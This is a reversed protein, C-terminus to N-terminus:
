RSATRDQFPIVAALESERKAIHAAADSLSTVRTYPPQPAPERYGRDIWISAVGAAQGAEIDRYRDGILYSSALDIGHDRAADLLMGPKPKRCHCRDGDHDCVYFADLPLRERLLNNIADVMARTQTGRAVDPQNTVVVLFFGLAELAALAAPANAMMVVETDSQPPYPKGERVVAENLVGDRDLFVARRM